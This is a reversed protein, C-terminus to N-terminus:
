HGIHSTLTLPRRSASQPFCSMSWLLQLSNCTQLLPQSWSCHRRSSVETDQVAEGLVPKRRKEGRLCQDAKGEEWRCRGGVKSEEGKKEPGSHGSGKRCLLGQCLEAEQSKKFPDRQQSNWPFTKWNQNKFGLFLKVFTNWSTWSRWLPLSM